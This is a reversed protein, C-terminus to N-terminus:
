MFRTEQFQESTVSGRMPMVRVEGQYFGADQHPMVDADDYYTSTPRVHSYMVETDLPLALRADHPTGYFGNVDEEVEYHDVMTTGSIVSQAYAQGGPRFLTAGIKSHVVDGPNNLRVPGEPGSVSAGVGMNTMTGTSHSRMPPPSDATTGRSYRNAGTASYSARSDGVGGVGGASTAANSTDTYPSEAGYRAGGGSRSEYFTTTEQQVQSAGSTTGFASPSRSATLPAEIHVYGSLSQSGAAGQLPIYTLTM